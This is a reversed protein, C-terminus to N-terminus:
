SAPPAPSAAPPTGEPKPPPKAIADLQIIINQIDSKQKETDSAVELNTTSLSRRIEEFRAPDAGILVPSVLSLASAAERIHTNALGFNKQDLDIATRCLSLRGTSLANRSESLALGRQLGNVQKEFSAKQAALEQRGQTLGVYYVAVLALIVVLTVIIMSRARSKRM